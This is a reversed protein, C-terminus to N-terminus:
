DERVSPITSCSSQPSAATTGSTLSRTESVEEGEDLELTDMLQTLRLQQLMDACRELLTSISVCAPAFQNLQAVFDDMEPSPESVLQIHFGQRSRHVLRITARHQDTSPFIDIIAILQNLCPKRVEQIVLLHASHAIRARIREFLLKEDETM